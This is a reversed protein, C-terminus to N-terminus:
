GSVRRKGSQKRYSVPKAAKTESIPQSGDIARKLEKIQDRRLAAKFRAADFFCIGILEFVTSSARRRLRLIALFSGSAFAIRGSGRLTLFCIGILQRQNGFDNAPALRTCLRGQNPL